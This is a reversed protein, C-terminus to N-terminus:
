EPKGLDVHQLVLERMWRRKEDESRISAEQHSWATEAERKRVAPPLDAPMGSVLSDLKGNASLAALEQPSPLHRNRLYESVISSRVGMQKQRGYDLAVLVPDHVDTNFLIREIKGKVQELPLQRGGHRIELPQLYWTGLRTRIPGLLESRRFPMFYELKDQAEPPLDAQAVTIPEVRGTDEIPKGRRISREIDRAFRGAKRKFNPLLWARFDATDPSLFAAMNQQYYSAVAKDVFPNDGKDMNMLNALLPLAKEYSTAPIKRVSALRVLVFGYPTRTPKVVSDLGQARAKEMVERPLEDSSVRTWPLSAPSSRWLSDAFMSDSTALIEFATEERQGFLRDQYARYLPRLKSDGVTKRLQGSEQEETRRFVANLSDKRDGHELQEELYKENLLSVLLRSRAQMIAESGAGDGSADMPPPQTGLANQNFEGLTVLCASIRPNYAVCDRESGDLRVSERFSESYNRLDSLRQASRVRNLSDEQAMLRINRGKPDLEAEAGAALPNRDSPLALLLSLFLTPFQLSPNFM